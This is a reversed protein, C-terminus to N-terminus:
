GAEVDRDGGGEHGNRRGRLLRPVLVGVRLRRLSRRGPHPHRGRNSDRLPGPVITWRTSIFTTDESERVDQTVTVWAGGGLPCRVVNRGEEVWFSLDVIERLITTAQGETLPLVKMGTSDCAPLSLLLLLATAARTKMPIRGKWTRAGPPGSKTPTGTRPNGARGLGSCSALVLSPKALIPGNNLFQRLDHGSLAKMLHLALPGTHWPLGIESLPPIKCRNEGWSEEGRRTPLLDHPYAMEADRDGVSEGVAGAVRRVGDRRGTALDLGQVAVRHGVGLRDGELHGVMLTWFYVPTRMPRGIRGGPRLVRPM